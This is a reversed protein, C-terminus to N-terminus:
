DSEPFGWFKWVFPKALTRNFYDILWEKPPIKPGFNSSALQLAVISISFATATVSVMSSVVASLLSRAGDPGGTYIWDWKEISGVKGMRDLTLMSFALAVALIAMITPVFWYSSHLSDWLKQLKVKM